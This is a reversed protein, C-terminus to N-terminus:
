FRIIIMGKEIVSQPFIEKIEYFYVEKKMNNQWEMRTAAGIGSKNREYISIYIEKTSERKSKKIVSQREYKSPIVNLVNMITSTKAYRTNDWAKKNHIESRNYPDYVYNTVGHTKILYETATDYKGGGMDLNITDCEWDIKKFGAPIKNRSTAPSGQEYTTKM